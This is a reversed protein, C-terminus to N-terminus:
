WSTGDSFTPIWMFGTEPTFSVYFYLVEVKPLSVVNKTLKPDVGGFYDLMLWYGDVIQTEDYSNAITQIM